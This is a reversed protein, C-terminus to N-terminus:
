SRFLADMVIMSDRMDWKQGLLSLLTLGTEINDVSTAAVAEAAQHWAHSILLVGTRSAIGDAAAKREETPANRYASALREIIDAGPPNLIPAACGRPLVEALLTIDDLMSM